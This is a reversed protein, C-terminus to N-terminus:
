VHLRVIVRHKQIPQGVQRCAEAGRGGQVFGGRLVKGVECGKVQADYPLREPRSSLGTAEEGAEGFEQLQGPVDSPCVELGLAPPLRLVLEEGILGLGPGAPERRRLVLGPNRLEQCHHAVARAHVVVPRGLREPMRPPQMLSVAHRGYVM